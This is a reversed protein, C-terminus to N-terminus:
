TGESNEADLLLLEGWDKWEFAEKIALGLEYGKKYTDTIWESPIGQLAASFGYKEHYHTQGYCLLELLRLQEERKTLKQKGSGNAM